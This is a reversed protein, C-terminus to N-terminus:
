QAGVGNLIFGDLGKNKVADFVTTARDLKKDEVMIPSEPAAHEITSQVDANKFEFKKDSFVTKNENDKARLV